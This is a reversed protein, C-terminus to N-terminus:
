IHVGKGDGGSNLTFALNHCDTEPGNKGRLLWDEPGDTGSFLRAGGRTRLFKIGACKVLGIWAECLVLCAAGLM